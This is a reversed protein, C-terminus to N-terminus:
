RPASFLITMFRWRSTTACAAPHCITTRREGSAARSRHAASGPDLSAASHEKGIGVGTTYSSAPVPPPSCSRRRAPSASIGADRRAANTSTQFIISALSICHCCGCIESFLERRECVAKGRACNRSVVVVVNHDGLKLPREMPMLMVVRVIKKKHELTGEVDLQPIACDGEVRAFNKNYGFADLVPGHRPPFHMDQQDLRRAGRIRAIFSSRRRANQGSGFRCSLRNSPDTAKMEHNSPLRIAVNGPHQAARSRHAASGPAWRAQCIETNGKQHFRSSQGKLFRKEAQGLFQRPLLYEAASFLWSGLFSKPFFKLFFKSFLRSRPRPRRPRSARKM